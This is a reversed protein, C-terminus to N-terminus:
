KITSCIENSLTRIVRKFNERMEKILRAKSVRKNKYLIEGVIIDGLYINGNMGCYMSIITGDNFTKIISKTLNDKYLKVRLDQNKKGFIFPKSILENSSVFVDEIRDVMFSAFKQKDNNRKNENSCDNRKDESLYNNKESKPLVISKQLYDAFTSTSFPLIRIKCSDSINYLYIEYLSAFHDINPKIVDLIFKYGKQYMDKYKDDGWAQGSYISEKGKETIKFASPSSKENQLNLHSFAREINSSSYDFFDVEADIILPGNSVAMINDQHLDIIAMADTIVKLMGERFFYKKAEEQDMSDKKIVFEEIHKGVDITMTAFAKEGNLITKDTNLITNLEALIGNKGVVLNDATLDHPKYVKAIENAKKRFDKEYGEHDQKNVLLLAHQGEQHPDSGTSRIWYKEGIVQQDYKIKAVQEVYSTMLELRKIFYDVQNFSKTDNPKVLMIRFKSVNIDASQLISKVGEVDCYDKLRLICEKVKNRQEMTMWDMVTHLTVSSCLDIPFIEETSLMNIIQAIQHCNGRKESKSCSLEECLKKYLENEEPNKNKIANLAWVCCAQPYSDYWFKWTFTIYTFISEYYEKTKKLIENIPHPAIDLAAAQQEIIKQLEERDLTKYEKDLEQLQM